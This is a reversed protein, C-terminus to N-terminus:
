LDLRADTIIANMIEAATVNSAKAEAEVFQRNELTLGADRFRPIREKTRVQTVYCRSVNLRDAIAADSEAPDNILATHIQTRKTTRTM